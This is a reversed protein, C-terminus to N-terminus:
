YGACVQALTQLAFDVGGVQHLLGAQSRMAVERRETAASLSFKDAPKAANEFPKKRIVRVM